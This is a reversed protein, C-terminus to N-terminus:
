EQQLTVPDFSKYRKFSPPQALCASPPVATRARSYDNEASPRVNECEDISEFSNYRVGFKVPPQLKGSSCSTSSTAHSAEAASTAAAANAASSPAAGDPAAAAARPDAFDPPLETSTPWGRSQAYAKDLRQSSDLKLYAPPVPRQLCIKMGIDPVATIGDM